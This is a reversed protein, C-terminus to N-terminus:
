QIYEGLDLWLKKESLPTKNPLLNNKIPIVNWKHMSILNMSDKYVTTTEFVQDFEGNDIAKLMGTEIIKALAPNEKSVFPYIVTPLHLLIDTQLKLPYEAYTKLEPLIEMLGRPIYDFRGGELMPYLNAPKTTLVTNLREANFVKTTTWFRGVGAKLSKLQELNNVGYFKNESGERIMLTRYSMLGKLMPVRIPIFREELEENTSLWMLDIEGSEMKNFAQARTLKGSIQNLTFKASDVNRLAMSLIDKNYKELSAEEIYFNITKAFSVSPLILILMLLLNIIHTQSSFCTTKSHYTSYINFM